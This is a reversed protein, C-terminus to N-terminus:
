LRFMDDFPIYEVRGITYLPAGGELSIIGRDTKNAIPFAIVFRRGDKLVIGYSKTANEIKISNQSYEYTERTGDSNTVRFSKEEFFLECKKGDQSMAKWSGRYVDSGSCGAIFQTLMVIMLIFYKKM